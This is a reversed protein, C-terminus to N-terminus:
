KLLRAPPVIEQLVSFAFLALLIIMVLRATASPPTQMTAAPDPPLLLWTSLIGAIFGGAHAGQDVVTLSLYGLTTMPILTIGWAILLPLFQRGLQKRCHILVVGLGGFVGFLITSAGVMWDVIHFLLSGLTGGIASLLIVIVTRTKGLAIEFISAFVLLGILNSQLHGTNVHFLNATILRLLHGGSTAERSISFLASVTSLGHAGALRSQLRFCLLLLAILTLTVFPIARSLPHIRPLRPM